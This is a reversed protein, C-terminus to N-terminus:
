RSKGANEIEDSTTYSWTVTFGHTYSDDQYDSLFNGAAEVSPKIYNDSEIVEDCVMAGLGVCAEVTKSILMVQASIGADIGQYKEYTEM